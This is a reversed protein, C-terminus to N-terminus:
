DTPPKPIERPVTRTRPRKRLPKREFLLDLGRKLLVLLGLVLLVGVLDQLKDMM